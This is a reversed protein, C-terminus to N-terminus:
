RLLLLADLVQLRADDCVNSTSQEAAVLDHWPSYNQDFIVQDPITALLEKARALADSAHGAAELQDIRDQLMRLYEYDQIGEIIALWHKGDTVSHSDVYVPSYIGRTAGLQNWTPWGGVDGYAWFATGTAGAKWCHWEQARFYRLADQISPGGACSYFWLERGDRRLNEYFSTVAVGGRVHDITSPCLIDCLEFMEPVEAEQPAWHCPDEFILLEPASAKIVRAWAVIRRDEEANSPEDVLLLAIRHPDIGIERAHDAWARMAAGVRQNFQATGMAAGAFTTGVNAFIMYYRADPFLSVWDDFPSLDLPKILNGAADFDTAQPHPFVRNTAWPANYNYSRLHAVIAPIKPTTKGNVYDWMGLALTPEDPFRFPEIILRLLSEIKQETGPIEVLVTGLYRGPGPSDEPHFSMWFQQSIGPLLKVRWGDSSRPLVPLANADWHGTQFTVYEVKHVTIYEPAQGGPLGTFKIIADLPSDGFNTVNLTEARTENAMMRVTLAPSTRPAESPLEWPRLRGWRSNHWAFLPPYGEARRLQAVVEGLRAHNDNLPYIGRYDAPFDDALALNTEEIAAIKEDLQQRTDAQVSAAAVIQRTHAIDLAIRSYVGLATQQQDAAALFPAVFAKLDVIAPGELPVALMEDPGRYVEIEDCFVWAGYAGMVLRVFRGHTALQDTRFRYDQYGWRLPLGFKTALSYLEGAYHFNINDDSVLILIMGPWSVGATGAGTSFSLGAIPMIEGLDITIAPLFVGRWGGVCALEVWLKTRGHCEGDTLQESDGPDTCHAYNPKPELTYPKHLAVNPGPASFVEAGRATGPLAIAASLLGIACVRMLWTCNLWNRPRM